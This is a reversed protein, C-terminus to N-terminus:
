AQMPTCIEILFGNNDRLYGVIQGWPKQILPEEEIAGAGLAKAFDEEINASTFTLEIGFPRGQPDSKLYGKKFNSAGLEFSAFAITTAGSILEGYDGEPTIFKRQFGFAQEYFHLSEEVEKVYLITYAYQM